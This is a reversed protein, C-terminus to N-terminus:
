IFNFNIQFPSKGGKNRSTGISRLFEKADCPRNICVKNVLRVFLFTKDKCANWLNNVESETVNVTFSTVKEHDTTVGSLFADQDPGGFWRRAEHLGKELM